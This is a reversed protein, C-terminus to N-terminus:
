KFQFRLQFKLRSDGTLQDLRNVHKKYTELAADAKLAQGLVNATAAAYPKFLKELEVQHARVAVARNKGTSITKQFSENARPGSTFIM